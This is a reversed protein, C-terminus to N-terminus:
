FLAPPSLTKTQNSGDIETGEKQSTSIERSYLPKNLASFETMYKWYRMPMHSMRAKPNLRGKIAITNYFLQWLERYKQEEEDAPPTEFSDVPIVAWQYPKYVLGVGHTKDHIFFQEERYRESFHSAVLPLVFNKPEMEAVLVNNVISFRLFGTFHHSERKLHRVAKHLKHVTENTLMDLVQPGRSFGLRLFQLIVVEKQPLSTLFALQIFHLAAPGIKGRIGALVRNAKKLDTLIPKGQFLQQYSAGPSYIDHPLEKKEYSEFVCSLM